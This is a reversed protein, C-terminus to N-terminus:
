ASSGPPYQDHRRQLEALEDASPQDGSAVIAALAEFYAERPAGPTFLMLMSARVGSENRFAHIGGAPVHLFDGPAADVWARGDYLRVAGELVYFSESMTRHFHASPGTPEVGTDWRHLGFDGSTTAGTALYHAAGGEGGAGTRLDPPATGRRLAASAEGQGSYRPPPYSM